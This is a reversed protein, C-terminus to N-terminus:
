KKNCLFHYTCIIENKVNLAITKSKMEETFHLTVLITWEASECLHDVIQVKAFPYIDYFHLVVVSWKELGNQVKTFPDNEYFHLIGCPM